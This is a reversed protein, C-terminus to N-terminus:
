HQMAHGMINEPTAENKSLIAMQRGKALVLVRDSMGLIEPLESSIMIVAIGSSTMKKILKYIEFKAGVDIGRTPEDLIIIEPSSLLVKGLVVKQQNGGSLYKVTQNLDPTKIRLDQIVTRVVADESEERIFLGAAAHKRLSTLTMNQKVSMDMVLGVEKRDESVYGIGNRIADQPSKISVKEGKVLIEGSDFADLGFIARAVETRGAGMLGAIGLVEGAQVEFDIDSFVNQRCLGRVSLVTKGLQGSGEPFLLALERGVMMSILTSSNLEAAEKTGIYRGDRLVTISDALAFIEDMKHSIYIVAVGQKKLDRIIAFLTAVEKDSIASTPEDMIIVKAKKSIAKVIEIMQQEAVRLHKMKTEPDLELGVQQLLVKAREKIKSDAVWWRWGKTIEKGLFINEAVTMEPVLLMEQHIMSINARLIERRDSGNLRKGEFIVEGADPTELGVLIKMLTSKGAGNEGMVAHVEGKKLSLFVKDLAKVGAFAKSLNQVELVFNHQEHM